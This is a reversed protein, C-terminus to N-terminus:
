KPEYSELRQAEVDTGTAEQIAKELGKRRKRMERLMAMMDEKSSPEALISELIQIMGELSWLDKMAMFILTEDDPEKSM